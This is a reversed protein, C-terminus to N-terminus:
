GIIESSDRAHFSSESDLNTWCWVRCPRSAAVPISFHATPISFGPGCAGVDPQTNMADLLRQIAANTMLVDPNLLLIFPEDSARIGQNCAAAFGRNQPNAILTVQPFATGVLDASGDGSANDVVIVRHGSVSQLCTQLVKRSNYSVIVICLSM